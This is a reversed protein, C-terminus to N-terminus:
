LFEKGNLRTFRFPLLHFTPPTPAFRELPYFARAM